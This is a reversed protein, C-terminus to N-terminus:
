CCISVGAHKLVKTTKLSHQLVVASGRSPRVLKSYATPKRMQSWVCSIHRMARASDLTVVGKDSIRIVGFLSTIEKDELIKQCLLRNQRADDDSTDKM